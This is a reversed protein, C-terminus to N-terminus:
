IITFYISKMLEFLEYDILSQIYRKPKALCMNMANFIWAESTVKLWAEDPSHKAKAKSRRMGVLSNAGRWRSGGNNTPERYLMASHGPQGIKVALKSLTERLCLSFLTGPIGRAHCQCLMHESVAGCVGGYKPDLYM